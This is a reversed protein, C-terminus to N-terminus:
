RSKGAIKDPEGAALRTEIVQAIEDASFGREIMERKLVAEQEAIRAKRWNSAIADVILWIPWAGFLCVVAVLGIIGNETVPPRGPDFHVAAPHKAVAGTGNQGATSFIEV